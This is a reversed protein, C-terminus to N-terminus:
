GGMEDAESIEGELKVKSGFPKGDELEEFLGGGPTGGM